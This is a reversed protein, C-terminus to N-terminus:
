LGRGPDIGSGPGEGCTAESRPFLAETTKTPNYQLHETLQTSVEEEKVEEILKNLAKKSLLACGLCGEEIKISNPPSNM